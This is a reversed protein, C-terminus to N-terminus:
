SSPDAPTGTVTMRAPIMTPWPPMEQSSVRWSTSCKGAMIVALHTVVAGMAEGLLRDAPLDRATLGARRVTAHIYSRSVPDRRRRHEPQDALLADSARV